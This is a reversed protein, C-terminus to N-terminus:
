LRLGTLNAILPERSVPDRWQSLGEAVAIEDDTRQWAPKNMRQRRLADGSECPKCRSRPIWKGRKEHMRFQSISLCRTCLSCTKLAIVDM